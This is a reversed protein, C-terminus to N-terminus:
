QGAERTGALVNKVAVYGIRPGAAMQDAIARVSYGRLPRIRVDLQDSMAFRRWRYFAARAQGPGTDRPLTMSQYVASM